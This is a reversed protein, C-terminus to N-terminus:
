QFRRKLLNHFLEYAQSDTNWSFKRAIFNLAEDLSNMQNIHDITKLMKEMDGDFLERQFLYRDALSMSRRIDSIPPLLTASSNNSTATVKPETPVNSEKTYEAKDAIQPVPETHPLEAEQPQESQQPEATQPQAESKPEIEQPYETEKPQKLEEQLNKIQQQYAAIQSLTEALQQELAQKKLNQEEICQRLANIKQEKQENAAKLQLLENDLRQQLADLESRMRTIDALIEEYM